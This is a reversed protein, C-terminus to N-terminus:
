QETAYEALRFVKEGVVVGMSGGIFDFEMVGICVKHGDILEEGTIIAEKLGTKQESEKIKTLLTKKGIM